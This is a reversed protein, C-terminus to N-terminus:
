GILSNNSVALCSYTCRKFCPKFCQLHWECRRGGRKLKCVRNWACYIFFPLINHLYYTNFLCNLSDRQHGGIKMGLDSRRPWVSCEECYVPGARLSGGDLGGSWRCFGSLGRCNWCIVQGRLVKGPSCVPGGRSTMLFDEAMVTRRWQQETLAQCYSGVHSVDAVLLERAIGGEPM